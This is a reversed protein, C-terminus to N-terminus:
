LIKEYAARQRGGDDILVITGCRIYGRQELLRRIGTNEMHIDVRVSACGRGCALDEALQLMEGALGRGHYSDRVAARHVTGYPTGATLWAGDIAEYNPEEGMCLTICGAPEGECTFLWCNGATIDRRFVGPDPM